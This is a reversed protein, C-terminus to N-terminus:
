RRSGMRRFSPFQVLLPLALNSALRDRQGLRFTARGTQRPVRRYRKALRGRNRSRRHESFLAPRRM